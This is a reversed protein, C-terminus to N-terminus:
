QRLTPLVTARAKTGQSPPPTALHILITIIPSCFLVSLILHPQRRSARQIRRSRAPEGDKCGLTHTNFLAYLISHHASPSSFHSPILPSAPHSRRSKARTLCLPSSAFAAFSRPTSGSAPARPQARHTHTTAEASSRLAHSTWAPNSNRVAPSSLHRQNLLLSLSPAACPARGAHIM